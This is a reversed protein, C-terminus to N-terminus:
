VRTFASRDERSISVRFFREAADILQPSNGSLIPIVIPTSRQGGIKESERVVACFMCRLIRVPGGAFASLDLAIQWAPSIWEFDAFRAPM